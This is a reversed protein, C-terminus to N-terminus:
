FHCLRYKKILCQLLISRGSGWCWAAEFRAEAPRDDALHQRRCETKRLKLLNEYSLELSQHPEQHRKPNPLAETPCVLFWRAAWGAFAALAM